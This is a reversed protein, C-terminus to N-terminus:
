KGICFTSFVSELLDATYTRGLIEGIKEAADRIHLSAAVLGEDGAEETAEASSIAEQAAALLQRHRDSVTAHVPEDSRVGIADLIAARLEALGRRRVASVDVRRFADLRDSSSPADVLDSKNFVLIVRHRDMDQLEREESETIGRRADAVLLVVDARTMTHRTRGIGESEIRCDSVRLGATDILRVPVGEMVVTEEITDRTTGPVETVIARDFGVLANLLTSKGVNPQGCIVTLAGERLLHGERWTGLLGEITTRCEALSAFLDPVTHDPLEEETFDLAASISASTSILSDYITIISNSLSGQIQEVAASAARDSQASILDMVAEAQPLDIRGNLFARMTFEGPQAPRAGSELVISLIRAAAVRGGHGQIEVVDERTYSHPARYVLVIVEDTLPEDGGTGPTRVYGHVFRGGPLESLSAKARCVFIREAIALSEPGSIRVIAIAAGGPATSIAAITDNELLM